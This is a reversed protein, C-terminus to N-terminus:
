EKRIKIDGTGTELEVRAIPSTGIEGEIAGGVMKKEARENQIDFDVRIDGVNSEASFVFAIDPPLRLEIDGVNSEIRTDGEFRVDQLTIDGVNSEIEFTGRVGTATVNGVNVVLDMSTDRPVTIELDVSPTRPINRLRRPTESEIEIEGTPRQRIYVKFDDLYSEAQQHDRGWAHKVASIRVQDGDGAQIVVDGVNIDAELSVPASVDFTKEIKETVEVRADTVIGVPVSLVGGLALAAIALCCCFLLVAVVILAIILPMNNRTQNESM